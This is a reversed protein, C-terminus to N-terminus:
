TFTTPWGVGAGELDDADAAGSAYVLTDQRRRVRCNQTQPVADLDKPAPVIVLLPSFLGM